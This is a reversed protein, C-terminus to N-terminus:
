GSLVVDLLILLQVAGWAFCAFSGLTFVFTLTKFWGALMDHYTERWLVYPAETSASYKRASHANCRMALHYFGVALGTLLVGGLFVLAAILANDAYASLASANVSVFALLAAFAAGNLTGPTRIATMTSEMASAWLGAATTRQQAWAHRALEINPNTDRNALPLPTVVGENVAVAEM